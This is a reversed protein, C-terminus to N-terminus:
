NWGADALFDGLRETTGINAEVAAVKERLTRYVVPATSGSGQKMSIARSKKKTAARSKSAARALKTSSRSKSASRKKTARTKAM